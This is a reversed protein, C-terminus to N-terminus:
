SNELGAQHSKVKAIVRQVHFNLNNFRNQKLCSLNVNTILVTFFLVRFALKKLTGHKEM